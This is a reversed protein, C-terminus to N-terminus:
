RNEQVEFSGIDIRGGVIRPYGKGRQDYDPAELNDGADIAPSGELLAHTLTPGGNDQLPGLRPDVDLLDTDAFGSGGTSDGILNYGQSGLNGSLDPPLEPSAENQAIVTNRSQLTGGNTHIGGGDGEGPSGPMGPRPASGGAGGDSGRSVNATLTSHDLALAGSSVSLGGGMGAGGGLGAGGLQRSWLLTNPPMPTCAAPAEASLSHGESCQVTDPRPVVHGRRRRSRRRCSETLREPGWM